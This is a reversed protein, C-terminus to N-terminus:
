SRLYSVDRKFKLNHAEAETLGIFESASFSLEDPYYHFLKKEVEPDDDLKVMVKPLTMDWMSKPGPTIRAEIIKPDPM